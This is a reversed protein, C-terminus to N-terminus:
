VYFSVSVLWLANEICNNLGQRCKVLLLNVIEVRISSIKSCDMIKFGCALKFKLELYGVLFIVSLNIM